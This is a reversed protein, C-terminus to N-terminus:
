HVHAVDVPVGGRRRELLVEGPETWHRVYGEFSVLHPALRAVSEYLEVLDGGHALGDRACRRADADLEVPALKLHLLPLAAFGAAAAAAAAAPTALAVTSSRFL